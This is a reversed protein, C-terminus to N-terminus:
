VNSLSCSVQFIKITIWSHYIYINNSGLKNNLLFHEQVVSYSHHSLCSPDITMHIGMQQQLGPFYWLSVQTSLHNAFLFGATYDPKKFKNYHCSNIFVRGHFSIYSHSLSGKNWFLDLHSSWTDTALKITVMTSPWAFGTITVFLRGM